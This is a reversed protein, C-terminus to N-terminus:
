SSRSRRATRYAPERLRRVWDYGALGPLAHRVPDFSVRADPAGVDPDGPRGSGTAVDEAPLRLEAFPWWPGRPRGWALELLDASRHRAALLVPGTPSRYPLLTTMPRGQPTGAFTLLFRTVRGLGTTALLLDGYGGGPVPVRLALGHIDPLPAPLGIARSRRVLVEDTGPEDLWAAGSRAAAAGHRVLRGRGVAGRPHLPKAAPRVAAVAATAASLVRGGLDAAGLSM